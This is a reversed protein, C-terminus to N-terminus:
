AGLRKGCEGCFMADAELAAGCAPCNRAVPAAGGVNSGAERLKERTTAIKDKLASELEGIELNESVSRFILCGGATTVLLPITSLAAALLAIGAAGAMVYGGEGGGFPSFIGMLSELMGGHLSGIALTSLGLNTGFGAGFGLFVLMTVVWVMFGLILSQIVVSLLRTKLIQWLSAIVEFSNHGAWIAPGALPTLFTLAFFMIMVILTGTPLCVFYLLPGLGPLRCIFYLLLLALMTVFASIAILLAVAIFKPLTTLAAFFATALPLAPQGAFQRHLHIGCASYATALIVFAVLVAIFGVFAGIGFHGQMGLRMGIFSIFGACLAAAVGGALLSIFARLNRPAELARLLSSSNKLENSVNSSLESM